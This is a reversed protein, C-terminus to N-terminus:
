SAPYIFTLYKTMFRLMQVGQILSKIRGREQTEKNGGKAGRLAAHVAVECDEREGRGLILKARVM